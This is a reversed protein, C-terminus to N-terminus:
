NGTPYNNDKTNFRATRYYQEKMIIQFQSDMKLSTSSMILTKPLIVLNYM